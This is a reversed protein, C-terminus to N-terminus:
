MVIAYVRVFVVAGSELDLVVTMYRHGKAVAIEDISIRKLHKLKPKSFHRNLYRKQITKVVDWHVQLHSATDKMSM